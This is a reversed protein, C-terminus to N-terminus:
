CFSARSSLYTAHSNCTGFQLRARLGLTAKDFPRMDIIKSKLFVTMTGKRENWDAVPITDRSTRADPSEYAIQLPEAKGM